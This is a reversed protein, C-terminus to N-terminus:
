LLTEKWHVTKVFDFFRHNLLSMQICDTDASTEDGKSRWMKYRRPDRSQWYLLCAFLGGREEEEEFVRESVSPLSMVWKQLKEPKKETKEPYPIILDIANDPKQLLVGLKSKIEKARPSLFCFPPTIISTMTKVWRVCALLLFTTMINTYAVMIYRYWGRDLM